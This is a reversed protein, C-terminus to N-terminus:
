KSGEQKILEVALEKYAKTGKCNKDYLLVPVGYSPAESIRINRPIMTKYVLFELHKQVDNAVLSSLSNRVDYMTLAIGQLTLSPNFGSRVGEITKMLQSLGELAYYECQLPVLVSDAASLANITLLGLSPPCDIFIYDFKEPIDKIIEKLRFERSDLTSLEIEAASLNESAPIISLNIIPTTHMCSDYQVEGAMLAYLDNKRKHTEVGLGTSANGQPDADIVLVRRNKMAIAAALNVVTTTKGVGGKQNSVAITKANM